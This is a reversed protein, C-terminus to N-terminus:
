HDEDVGDVDLDAVPLHGISRDRACSQALATPGAVNTRHLLALDREVTSSVAGFHLVTAFQGSAVADLVAPDDFSCVHVATDSLLDPPPEHVDVTSVRHGAAVCARAVHRSTFGAAGTVLVSTTM